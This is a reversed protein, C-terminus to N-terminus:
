QQIGSYLVRNISIELKKNQKKNIIFSLTFASFSLLIVLLLQKIKIGPQSKETLGKSILVWYKQKFINLFPFVIISCMKLM